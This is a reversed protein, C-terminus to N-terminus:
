ARASAWRAFRGSRPARICGHPSWSTAARRRDLGLGAAPHSARLNYLHPVVLLDFGAERLTGALADEFAAHDGAIM